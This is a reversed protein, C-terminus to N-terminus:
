EQNRRHMAHQNLLKRTALRDVLVLRKWQWVRRERSLGVDDVHVSRPREFITPCVHDWARGSVAVAVDEQCLVCIGILEHPVVLVAYHCQTAVRTSAEDAVTAQKMCASGSCSWAHAEPVINIVATRLHLLLLYTHGHEHAMHFSRTAIAVEM